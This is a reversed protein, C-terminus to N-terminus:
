HSAQEGGARRDLYKNVVIPLTEDLFAAMALEEALTERLLPVAEQYGGREAIIILAKYSAVEFNEFAFNAFSNKLIEDAAFTHGLAALTGSLSAAVDKLASHSEGLSDLITELREIQRETEGRHSRLQVEVDAYEALHEIQRDLLSLAQHELAHANRLGTVFEHRIADEAVM